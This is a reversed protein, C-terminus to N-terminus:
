TEKKCFSDTSVDSNESPRLKSVPRENIRGGNKDIEDWEKL